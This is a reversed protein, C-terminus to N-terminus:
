SRWSKVEINSTSCLSPEKPPVAETLRRTASLTRVTPMLSFLAKVTTVKVNDFHGLYRLQGLEAIRM